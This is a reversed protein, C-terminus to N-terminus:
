DSHGNHVIKMLIRSLLIFHQVCSTMMKKDNVSKLRAILSDLDADPGLRMAVEKADGRLSLQIAELLSDKSHTKRKLLCSIEYYWQDFSADGKTLQKDGSFLSLRPRSQHHLETSATKDDKSPKSSQQPIQMTPPKVDGTEQQKIYEFMWTKLDAADKCKPVDGLAEFGELLHKAEEQESSLALEKISLITIYIYTCILYL